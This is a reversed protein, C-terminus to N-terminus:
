NKIPRSEKLLDDWNNPPSGKELMKKFVQYADSKKGRARLTSEDNVWGFIIIKSDLHYRFFLRYQQYFKARFWHKYEAGLTTGQRYESLTPDDPITKLILGYIAAMRKAAPTNKYHLPDKDKLRKVHDRLSKLQDTFRSHGLLYWGNAINIKSASM